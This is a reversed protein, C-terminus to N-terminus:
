RPVDSKKKLDSADLQRISGTQKPTNNFFINTKKTFYLFFAVKAVLIQVNQPVSKFM